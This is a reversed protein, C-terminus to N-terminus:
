GKGSATKPKTSVPLPPAPFRSRRQKTGERRPPLLLQVVQVRGGGGGLTHSSPGGVVKLIGDRRLRARQSGTAPVTSGPSSGREGPGRQM